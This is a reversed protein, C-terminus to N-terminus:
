RLREKTENALLWSRALMVLAPLYLITLLASLLMM